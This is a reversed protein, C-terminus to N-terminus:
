PKAVITQNLTEISNKLNVLSQRAAIACDTEGADSLVAIELRFKCDPRCRSNILPCFQEKNESM